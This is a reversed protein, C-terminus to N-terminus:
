WCSVSCVAQPVEIWLSIGVHGNKVLTDYCVGPWWVVCDACLIYKARGILQQLFELKHQM